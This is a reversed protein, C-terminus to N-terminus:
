LLLVSAAIVGVSFWGSTYLNARTNDGMGMHTARCEPFLGCLSRVHMLLWGSDCLLLLLFFFFVSSLFYRVHWSTPQETHKPSRLWIVQMVGLWEFSRQPTIELLCVHCCYWGGRGGQWPHWFIDSKAFIRDRQMQLNVNELDFTADLIHSIITNCYIIPISSDGQVTGASYISAQVAGRPHYFSPCALM